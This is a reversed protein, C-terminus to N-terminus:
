LHKPPAPIRGQTSELLIRCLVLSGSCFKPCAPRTWNEFHYRMCCPALAIFSAQFSCCLRLRLRFLSSRDGEKLTSFVLEEGETSSPVDTNSNAIYHSTFMFKRFCCAGVEDRMSIGIGFFINRFSSVLCCGLFYHMARLSIFALCAPFLEDMLVQGAM